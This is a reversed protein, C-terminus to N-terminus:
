GRVSSVGDAYSDSAALAKYTATRWSNKRNRAASEYQANLFNRVADSGAAERIGHVNHAISSMEEAAHISFTSALKFVRFHSKVRETVQPTWNPPPDVEFHVSPGQLTGRLWEIEDVADFYPHLTPDVRSGKNKNCEACAPVLNVPTTAFIAHEGKPLFHDLCTVSRAHCLPCLDVALRLQDYIARCSSGSKALRTEYNAILEARTVGFPPPVTLGDLSGSEAADIYTQEAGVISALSDKM